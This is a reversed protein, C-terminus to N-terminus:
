IILITHQFCIHFAHASMEDTAAAKADDFDVVVVAISKQTVHQNISQNQM